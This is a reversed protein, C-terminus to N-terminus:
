HPKGRCHPLGPTRGATCLTGPSRDPTRPQTFKEGDIRVSGQQVKRTADSGSKALGTELLLHEISTGAVMPREAVNELVERRSFRKEFQEAASGAEAAGHFDTVITARWISRQRSRICSGPRRRGGSAGRNRRGAPGDAAHLVEVDARGLDVDAQRVDGGAGRHGRRLQRPEEVDERRRGAGRAAADDDRDAARPRLRPMIDRGVNLNFLQDTGGLEVDAQLVVSDYAQALPYLFEHVAIPKGSEYRKKFERRELMQAVNYKAALKVWGVSGLPELWESNFRVETKAPDLIKFIQTKYTEANACDRRADAAAADEIARDSRRHARHVRRGRVRRHPRSGPLAEDEPHARHPGPAPRARDSRLRGERRAAPRDRRRTRAQSAARGCPRRGRLGQHSVRTARRHDHSCGVIVVM